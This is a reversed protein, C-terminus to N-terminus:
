SKQTLRFGALVLALGVLQMATPINGLFVVGTVLTFPPVLAPFVAARAAGLLVVARTFLYTAVAGSLVGQVLALIVNERLGAAIMNGFGGVFYQLPLLVLSFVSTIAVARIPAIRWLKLLVGFIAFCFGAMAFSLDGLIGHVGITSVAEYGIICLGAVLGLGGFIRAPVFREHFVLTALILGGLAACSPQIVGGHGLPVLLFGANSFLVLLIGGLLTLAVIRGAGVGRIDAAGGSRIFPLFFLGALCLRYLSIELPTLGISIGHLSSVLGIAWCMAAGTGCLLGAAAPSLWPKKAANQQHTM